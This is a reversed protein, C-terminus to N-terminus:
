VEYKDLKVEFKKANPSVATMVATYQGELKTMLATQSAMQRKMFTLQQQM